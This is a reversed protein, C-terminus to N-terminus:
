DDDQLARSPEFSCTEENWVFAHRAASATQADARAAPEARLLLRVSGRLRDVRVVRTFGNLGVAAYHWAADEDVPRRGDPVADVHEDDHM